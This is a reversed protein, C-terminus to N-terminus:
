QSSALPQRHSTTLTATPLATSLTEALTGMKVKDVASMSAASSLFQAVKASMDDRTIHTHKLVRVDQFQSQTTSSTATVHAAVFKM